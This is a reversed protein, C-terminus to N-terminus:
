LVDAIPVKGNTAIISSKNPNVSSDAMTISGGGREVLLVGAAIDWISIEDEVYADLRGCSIYALALAASGLMRMKRVRYAVTKYRLLGADMAEKSKSFGITVAADSLDSRKSPAIVKGNRTAPGEWDAEYIEDYIPDYIVGVVIKGEQRLAISVCFHPIGYFFNVTGDIPDVIWQNPSAQNGAIGEEGYIAHDPFAELLIETILEECKVDLDLKIDHAHMENVELPQEFNKRLLAGAARAAQSAVTLEPSPQNSM